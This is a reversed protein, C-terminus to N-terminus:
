VAMLRAIVPELSSPSLRESGLEVCRSEQLALGPLFYCPAVGGLPVMTLALAAEVHQLIGSDM